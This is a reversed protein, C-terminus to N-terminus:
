LKTLLCYSITLTSIFTLSMFWWLIRYPPVKLAVSTYFANNWIIDVYDDLKKSYLGSSTFGQYVTSSDYQHHRKHDQKTAFIGLIELPKLLYYIGYSASVRKHVWDHSIPLLFVGIEYGLFYVVMESCCLYLNIWLFIHMFITRIPYDMTFLSFSNWHAIATMPNAGIEKSSFTSSMWEDDHKHHHHYFAFFMVIPLQGVYKTMNEINWLPYELMLSHAWVHSAIFNLQISVLGLIFAIFSHLWSKSYLISLTLLFTIIGPYVSIYWKNEFIRKMLPNNETNHRFLDRFKEKEDDTLYRHKYEM